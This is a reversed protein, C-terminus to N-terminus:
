CNCTPIPTVAPTVGDYSTVLTKITFDELLLVKYKDDAMMTQMLWM